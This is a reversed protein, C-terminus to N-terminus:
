LQLGTNKKIKDSYLLSLLLLISHKNYCELEYAAILQDDASYVTGMRRHVFSSIGHMHLRGVFKIHLVSTRIRVVRIFCYRSSFSAM